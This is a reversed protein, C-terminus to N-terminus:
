KKWVINMKKIIEKGAVRGNSSSIKSTNKLCMERFPLYIKRVWGRDM